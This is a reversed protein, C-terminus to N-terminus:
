DEEEEQITDLERLYPSPKLLTLPNVTVPWSQSKILAQKAFSSLEGDADRMPVYIPAPRKPLFPDSLPIATEQQLSLSRRLRRIMLQKASDSLAIPKIPREESMQTFSKSTWDLGPLSTTGSLRGKSPSNLFNSPIATM